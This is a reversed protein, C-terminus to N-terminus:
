MLFLNRFDANCVEAEGAGVTPSTSVARQGGTTNSGRPGRKWGPRVRDGLRDLVERRRDEQQPTLNCVSESPATGALCEVQKREHRLILPFGFAFPWMRKVHVSGRLSRTREVCACVEAAAGAGTAAGRLIWGSVRRRGGHGRRDRGLGPLDTQTHTHGFCVCSCPPTPLFSIM